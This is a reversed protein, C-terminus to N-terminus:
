TRNTLKNFISKFVRAKQNFLIQFYKRKELDTINTIEYEEDEKKENDIIEMSNDHNSEENQAKTNSAEGNEELPNGLDVCSSTLCYNQNEKETKAQITEDSLTEKANLDASDEELVVCSKTLIFNQENTAEGENAQEIPKEEVPNLTNEIKFENGLIVCSNTLDENNIPETQQTEDEAAPNEQTIEAALDNIISNIEKNIENSVEFCSEEM